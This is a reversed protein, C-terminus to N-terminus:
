GDRYGNRGLYGSFQFGHYKEEHAAKATHNYQVFRRVRNKHRVSVEACCFRM